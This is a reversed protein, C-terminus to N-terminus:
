KGVASRPIELRAKAGQTSLTGFFLEAHGSSATRGNQNSDHTPFLIVGSRNADLSSTIQKLCATVVHLSHKM